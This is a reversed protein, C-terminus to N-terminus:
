NSSTTWITENNIFSRIVSIPRLEGVIHLVSILGLSEYSCQLCINATEQIFVGCRCQQKGDPISIACHEKKHSKPKPSKSRITRGRKALQERNLGGLILRKVMFDYTVHYKRALSTTTSKPHSLWENAVSLPKPTRNCALMHSHSNYTYSLCCRKCLPM